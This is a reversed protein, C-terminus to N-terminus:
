QKQLGYNLRAIVYKEGCKNCTILTGINLENELILQKNKCEPCDFDTANIIFQWSGERHEALYTANCKNNPCYVLDLNPLADVCTTIKRTCLQCNFYLTEAFDTMLNGGSARLLEQYIPEIENIDINLVGANDQQLHLYKGLKNYYKRTWKASLAEHKGLQKFENKPKGSSNEVAFSIRYSKDASPELQLLVRLAKDPQWSKYLLKEGHRKSYYRLKEYVHKELAMRLELCAHILDGENGSDM